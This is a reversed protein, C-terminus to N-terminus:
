VNRSKDRSKQCKGEGDAYGAKKEIDVCREMQYGEGYCSCCKGGGIQINGTAGANEKGFLEM